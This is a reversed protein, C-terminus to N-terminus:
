QRGGANAVAITTPSASAHSPASSVSSREYGLDRVDVLERLEQQSREDVADDRRRQKPRVGVRDFALEGM